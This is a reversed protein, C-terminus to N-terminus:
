LAGLLLYAAFAAGVLAGGYSIAAIPADYRKLQLADQVTFRIRHAAHVLALACIGLLALRTLPNRLLALLDGHDPADILGLPIALGFLLILVPLVMAAVMGGGSFLLWIYPEVTRKENM